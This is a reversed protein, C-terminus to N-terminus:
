KGAGISALRMRVGLRPAIGLARSETIVHELESPKEIVIVVDLGLQRGILALRIYQRDKYGNCIVRSGSAALALVAMLEPKSGAELGFGAHAGADGAQGVRALE